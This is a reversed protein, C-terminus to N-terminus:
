IEGTIKLPAPPFTISKLRKRFIFVLAMGLAYSAALLYNELGTEKVTTVTVMNAFFQYAINSGWHIGLTLWLTGTLTYCYMLLLGLVFLYLMVDPRNLRFIHNLVYVVASVPVIWRTKWARPWWARLYGRTLLDEALSPLLTGAAFLLVPMIMATWRVEIHITSWHLWVPVLNALVSLLIGTVLGLALNIGQTSFGFLGYMSFGNRYQLRGLLFAVLVVLLMGAELVPILPANSYKQIFEPLHYLVFLVVFGMIAKRIIHKDGSTYPNM